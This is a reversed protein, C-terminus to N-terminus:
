GASAALQILIRLLLRQLLLIVVILLMPSFDIGGMLPLRRRIPALLPETLSIILRVVPHYPSPNFWSLIARAIVIWLYLNLALNFLKALALIVSSM